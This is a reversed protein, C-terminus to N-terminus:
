FAQGLSVFFGGPPAGPRRRLTFGYDLRVLGLPSEVRLGLGASAALDRLAVERASRFVNGADVFGVVGVRPWLRMRAEQNLVVLANGGAPAGSRAAPGLSDQVYGRVTNGGGAFFRETAIVADGLGTALGLRAASALVVRGIRRYLFQQGLYKFFSRPRGLERGYEVNSSHYFGETPDFLNDRTDLVASGDFRVVRDPVAISPLPGARAGPARNLDLNASAALMTGPRPRFRQEGTFTTVDIAGSGAAPSSERRRAAFLNTEVPRGALAPLTLFARVAQQERDVRTSM